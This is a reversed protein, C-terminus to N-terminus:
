GIRLSTRGGEVEFGHPLWGHEKFWKNAATMDVDVKIKRFQEPIEDMTGQWVPRDPVKSISVTFLDTAVKQEGLRELERKLYARLNKVANAKHGAKVYLRAIETRIAEETRELTAILRCIGDVKDRLGMELAALKEEVEPSLEGGTDDLAQQVLLIDRTLEYLTV